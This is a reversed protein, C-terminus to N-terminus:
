KLEEDGDFVYVEGGRLAYDCGALRCTWILAVGLPVDRMRLTILGSKYTTSGHRDVGELSKAAPSLIVRVGGMDGLTRLADVHPKNVFEFSVKARLRERLKRNAEPDLKLEVRIKWAAVRCERAAEEGISPGGALSELAPLEARAAAGRSGLERAAWGRCQDEPDRLLASLPAIGRGPRVQLLSQTAAIRVEPCPDAAARELAPEARAAAPGLWGLIWAAKERVKAADRGAPRASTRAEEPVATLSILTDMAPLAEAHLEGLLDLAVGKRDALRAPLRLYLVIKAVAGRPGGLGEVERPSLEPFTDNAHKEVLARVQLYPLLGLWCFLGLVALLGLGAAWLAYIRRSGDARGAHRRELPQEADM